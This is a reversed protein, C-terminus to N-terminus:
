PWAGPAPTPAAAASPKSASTATVLGISTQVPGDNGVVTAVINEFRGQYDLATRYAPSWIGTLSQAGLTVSVQNPRDPGDLTIRDGMTGDFRYTGEAMPVVKANAAGLRLVSGTTPTTITLAPITLLYHDQQPVATVPGALEYRIGNAEPLYFSLGETVGAVIAAAGEPTIPPGDEAPSCAILIFLAAGALAAGRM